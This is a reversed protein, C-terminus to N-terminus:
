YNKEVLVDDLMDSFNYFGKKNQIWEAATVAGEAFGSRNKARHTLEITDPISDIYVTHIGTVEGGRTSSVHLLDPIIQGETKEPLIEKKAKVNNLIIDALTLATGSPSDKKRKHHIEHIMIDYDPMKNIMKSALEIIKFYLHMSVSFNSGYVCGIGSKEVITRAEIIRDYWGTTGIVVNKKLQSLIELNEIVFESFGFDVAVDFDYNKDPLIKRDIEFIETIIIDRKFAINKIEKGMSGFGILAIKLQNKLM